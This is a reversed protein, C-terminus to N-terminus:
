RGRARRRSAASGIATLATLWAAPLRRRGRVVTTQLAAVADDFVGDGHGVLIRDPALRAFARPPMPRVLPHWGVREGPARFYRLTGLVDACVLTRAAPDWLAVERWLRNDRVPVAEFPAGDLGEWARVHPVGLRGAVAACDRNHRDLLQLVGAPEGLGRVREDVGPGDVPDIVWVRGDVALAHSTRAMAEDAVWGIGGDWADVWRLEVSSWSRM